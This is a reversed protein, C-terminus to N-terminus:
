IADIHPVGANREDVIAALVPDLNADRSGRSRAREGTWPRRAARGAAKDRYMDVDAHRLLTDWRAGQDPHIAVGISATIRIQHGSIVFDGAIRDRLKQALGMAVAADSLETLLAVFEDGGYRCAVDDARVCAAIRSAVAALLRDGVAHGLNDNVSKFGDLDIFLLAMRRPRGRTSAIAAELREMLFHRNPLGTLVDHHAIRRAAAASRLAADLSKSLRRNEEQMSKQARLAECLQSELNEPAATTAQSSGPARHLRAVQARHRSAQTAVSAEHEQNLGPM